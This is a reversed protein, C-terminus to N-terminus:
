HYFWIKWLQVLLTPFFTFVEESGPFQIKFRGGRFEWGAESFSQYIKVSQAKHLNIIYLTPFSRGGEVAEVVFTEPFNCMYSRSIM